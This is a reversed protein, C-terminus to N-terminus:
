LLVSCLFTVVAAGIINLILGETVMKRVPFLHSGYVIMNPPTAVPLMFACSASIAAPIMLIMPDMDTGVAVTALIPMLLTTTATNSTLETLFSVILCLTLIMLWSPWNVFYSMNAAIDATLGTSKFASAIALGGGMLLLIGWPIRSATEWDLLKKQEGSEHKEGDNILFLIVVAFLATYGDHAGKFSIESLSEKYSDLFPLVLAMWSWDSFWTKWGGFPASRTVWFLATVAFIILVRREVSRWPGMDEIVVESSGSVKRTLWLWAVPLLCIVCPIGICMWEFFGFENGTQEQYAGMFVINPPTGIPTGMGGINAAYAIGLLLPVTITKSSSKQITALAIPLLALTTATNSVWMSLLATAVMFALILMKDNKRGFTKIMGMALRTHVNSKEMAAALMFGGLLLLVMRNGYAGAIAEQPLVGLTPFLALPLLSTVALPIPEFMWWIATWTTVGAAIAYASDKGNMLLLLVLALCSLPGAWLAYKKVM